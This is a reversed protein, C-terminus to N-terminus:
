PIKKLVQQSLCSIGLVADIISFFYSKIEFVNIERFKQLSITLSSIGLNRCHKQHIYFGKLILPSVVQMGFYGTLSFIFALGYSEVANEGFAKYGSILSGDLSLFMLLYFFGIGYSYFIVEANSGQHLKMAKEQVNGVIADAILALSIM